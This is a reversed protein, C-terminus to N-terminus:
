AGAARCYRVIGRRGNTLWGPDEAQLRAVDPRSVDVVIESKMTRLCAFASPFGAAIRDMSEWPDWRRDELLRRYNADGKVITIDADALRARLDAPMRSFHLPSSWFWHEGSVLRGERAAGGLARGAASLAPDPDSAFLALTQEVDAETADSVFFPTRKAHLTITRGSGGALLRAALLLDCALEPGANDLVIHIRRAGQLADLVSDTHDVVLSERGHTLM